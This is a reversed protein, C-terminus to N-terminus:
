GSYKFRQVLGRDRPNLSPVASLLSQTYQHRPQTIVAETDGSEVIAGKYMVVIRNCFYRIVGIDHSIMIVTLGLREKMELLLDLVQARLSVDLASTAEDAIIVRPDLALARAIVIRQRQGGSFAHPYRDIGSPDLGVQKLLSVVKATLEPGSISGRVLLPEGILQRVTLRPNLSSFPDQFIMRIDSHVHRMLKRPGAALDITRGDRGRYVAAGSSPDVIRMICRGLTTKGSGSEGVVGLSDGEEIRLDVDKLAEVVRKQGTGFFGSTTVYTKSLKKIDIIPM